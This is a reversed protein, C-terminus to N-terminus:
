SLTVMENGNDVDTYITLDTEEVGYSIKFSTVWKNTRGQTVIATIMHYARLHIQIYPEMQDNSAAMWSTMANFRAEHGCPSTTACSSTTIDANSIDGSEM